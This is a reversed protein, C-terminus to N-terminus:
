SSFKSCVPVLAAPAVARATFRSCAAVEGVAIQGDGILEGLDLQEVEGTCTYEVEAWLQRVKLQAAMVCLTAVNMGVVQQLAATPDDCDLM